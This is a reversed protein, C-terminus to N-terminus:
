APRAMSRLTPLIAALLRSKFTAVSKVGRQDAIIKLAPEKSNKYDLADTALIIPVIVKRGWEGSTAKTLPPLTRALCLIELVADSPNECAGDRWWGRLSEKEEEVSPYKTQHTIGRVYDLHCVLGDLYRVMPTDARFRANKSADLPYQTGLKFRDALAEFRARNDHHRQRIMPWGHMHPAATAVQDPFEDAFRDLEEVRQYTEWAFSDVINESEAALEEPFQERCRRILRAAQASDGKAICWAECFLDSSSTRRARWSILHGLHRYIVALAFDLQEAYATLEKRQEEDLSKSYLGVETKRLLDGIMPVVGLVPGALLGALRNGPETAIHRCIKWLGWQMDDGMEQKPNAQLPDTALLLALKLVEVSQEMTARQPSEDGSPKSNRKSGM